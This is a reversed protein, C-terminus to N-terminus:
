EEELDSESESGKEAITIKLIEELKKKLDYRGKLAAYEIATKGFVDTKPRLDIMSRQDYFMPNNEYFHLKVLEDIATKKQHESVKTALFTEINLETTSSPSSPDAVTVAHKKQSNELLREFFKTKRKEESSSNTSSCTRRLPLDVLGNSHISSVLVIDDQILKKVIESSKIVQDLRIKKHVIEFLRSYGLVNKKWKQKFDTSHKEDLFAELGRRLIHKHGINSTVKFNSLEKDLERRLKQFGTEESYSSGASLTDLIPLRNSTTLEYIQTLFSVISETLKSKLHFMGYESLHLKTTSSSTGTMTGTTSSLDFEEKEVKSISFDNFDSKNKVFVSLPEKLETWISPEKLSDLSLVHTIKVVGDILKMKTVVIKPKPTTDLETSTGEEEPDINGSYSLSQESNARGDSSGESPARTTAKAQFFSSLTITEPGGSTKQSLNSQSMFKTMSTSSTSSMVSQRIQTDTRILKDDDDQEYVKDYDDSTLGSGLRPRTCCSRRSGFSELALSLSESSEPSQSTQSQTQVVNTTTTSEHGEALSQTPESKPLRLVSESKSGQFEIHSDDSHDILTWELEWEKFNKFCRVMPGHNHKNFVLYSSKFKAEPFLNDVRIRFEETVEKKKLSDTHSRSSSKSKNRGYELVDNLHRRSLKSGFERFIPTVEEREVNLRSRSTSEPGGNM